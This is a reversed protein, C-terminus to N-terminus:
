AKCVLEAGDPQQGGGSSPLFLWVSGMPSTMTQDVNSFGQILLLLVKNVFHIACSCILSAVNGGGWCIKVFHFWHAQGSELLVNNVFHGACLCIHATM